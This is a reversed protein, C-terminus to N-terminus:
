REWCTTSTAGQQGLENITLTLCSTDKLQHGQATATMIFTTSNNAVTAAISYYGSETILPNVLEGLDTMNASYRRRDVFLQEQLNALRLLERQAETRNSRLVFDTYSPYAVGILLGIISVAIMLEILTFGKTKQMIIKYRFM